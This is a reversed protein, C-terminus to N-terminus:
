YANVTILKTKPKKHLTVPAQNYKALDDKPKPVTQHIQLGVTGLFTTDTTGSSTIRLNSGASTGLTVAEPYTGDYEYFESELM